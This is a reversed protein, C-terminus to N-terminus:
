LSRGRFNMHLLDQQIKSLRRIGDSALALMQQLEEESYARGEATAQVEVFRGGGTM